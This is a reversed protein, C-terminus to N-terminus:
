MQGIEDLWPIVGPTLVYIRILEPYNDSSLATEVEWINSTLSGDLYLIM